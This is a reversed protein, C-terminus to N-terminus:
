ILKSFPILFLSSLLYYKHICTQYGNPLSIFSEWRWIHFPKVCWFTLYAKVLIWFPPFTSFLLTFSFIILISFLATHALSPHLTFSRCIYICTFHSIEILIKRLRCVIKGWDLIWSSYSFICYMCEFTLEMRKYLYLTSSHHM